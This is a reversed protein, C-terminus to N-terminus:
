TSVKAKHNEKRKSKMKAKWLDDNQRKGCSVGMEIQEREGDGERNGGRDNIHSSNKTYHTNSGSDL